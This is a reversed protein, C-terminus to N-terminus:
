QCRGKTLLCPIWAGILVRKTAFIMVGTPIATQSELHPTDSALVNASAQCPKGRDRLM